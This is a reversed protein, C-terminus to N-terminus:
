VENSFLKLQNYFQTVCYRGKQTLCYLRNNYMSKEKLIEVFGEELLYKLSYIATTRGSPCYNTVDKMEFCEYEAGFILIDFETNRLERETCFSTKVISHYALNSLGELRESQTRLSRSKPEIGKL